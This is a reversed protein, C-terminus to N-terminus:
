IVFRRKPWDYSPRWAKHTMFITLFISGSVLLGLLARWNQTLVVALAFKLAIYGLCGMFLPLKERALLITAIACGALKFGYVRYAPSEPSLLQIIAVISWALFPLILFLDRYYNFARSPLKFVDGDFMGKWDPM